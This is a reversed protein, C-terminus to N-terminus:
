LLELMVVNLCTFLDLINDLRNIKMENKEGKSRQTSM